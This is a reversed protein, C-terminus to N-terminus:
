RPSTRTRGELRAAHRRGRAHHEVSRVRPRARQLDRPNNPDPDQSERRPRAESGPALPVRHGVRRRAEHPERPRGRRGRVLARLGVSTGPRAGRGVGLHRRRRERRHRTARPPRRGRRRGHRRGRRHSHGLRRVSPDLVRSCTPRRDCSAAVRRNPYLRRSLGPRSVSPDLVRAWM